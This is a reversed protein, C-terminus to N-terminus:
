FRGGLGVYGGAPVVRASTDAPAGGLARLVPYLAVADGRAGEDGDDNVELVILVVSVAAAAVAVGTLVDATVNLTQGRSRLDDARAVDGEDRADEFSSFNSLALGGTVAAAVGAAGTIGIATWMGVPTADASLSSSPLASSPSSSPDEPTTAASPDAPLPATAQMDVGRAEQDGPELEIEIRVPAYGAAEVTLEHRGARLGVTWTAAGPEYRNEVVAPNSRRRDIVMAGPPLGTLRVRAMRGRLLELDQLIARREAPSKAGANELYKEYAAIAEGDRELKAAALGLNGLIKPSPSDAYARQFAEYASRYDPPSAKLYGVGSRFLARATESVEPSSTQACAHGADFAGLSSAALVVAVVASAARRVGGRRGHRFRLGM